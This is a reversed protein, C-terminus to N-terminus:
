LVFEKVVFYLKVVIDGSVDLVDGVIVIIRVLRLWMVGLLIIIKFIM